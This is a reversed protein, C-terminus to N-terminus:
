KRIIWIGLLLLIALGANDKIVSNIDTCKQPPPPIIEPYTSFVDVLPTVSGPVPLSTQPAVSQAITQQVAPPPPVAAVPRPWAANGSYGQRACALQGGLDLTTQHQIAAVCQERSVQQQAQAFQNGIEVETIDGLGYSRYM